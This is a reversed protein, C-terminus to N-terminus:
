RNVEERRAVDRFKRAMNHIQQLMTVTLYFHRQLIHRGRQSHAHGFDNSL